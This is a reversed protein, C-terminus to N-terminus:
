IRGFVTRFFAPTFRLVDERLDPHARIRGKRGNQVLDVEGFEGFLVFGPGRLAM